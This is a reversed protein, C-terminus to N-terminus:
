ADDGGREGGDAAVPSVDEAEATASITVNEGGEERRALMISGVLAAVLLFDIIEFALLFGESAIPTGESVVNSAELGFMAAGISKMLAADAGFGSPDPLEVSLFAAALVVFLGIAALGPLLSIDRKLQPRSM